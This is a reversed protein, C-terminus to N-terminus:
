DPQKRGQGALWHRSIEGVTANLPRGLRAAADRLASDDEPSLWLGVWVRGAEARSARSQTKGSKSPRRQGRALAWHPVLQDAFTERYEEEAEPPVKPQPWPAAAKAQLWTLKDARALGDPYQKCWRNAESVARYQARTLKDPM